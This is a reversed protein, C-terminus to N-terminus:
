STHLPDCIGAIKPSVRAGRLLVLAAAASAMLTIFERRKM